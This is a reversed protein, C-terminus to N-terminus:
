KGGYISIVIAAMRKSYVELYKFLKKRDVNERLRGLVEDSLSEKFVIMDIFTKEIDSYPLYFNGDLLYEFGFIFKKGSRRVLVNGGLVNRHGSRVKESTVIVPLTEQEWMGHFSLASQLGDPVPPTLERFSM